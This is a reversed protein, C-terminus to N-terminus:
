VQGEYLLEDDTKNNHYTKGQHIFQKMYDYTNDQVSYKKTGSDALALIKSYRAIEKQSYNLLTQTMTSSKAKAVIKLDNYFEETLRIPLVKSKTM